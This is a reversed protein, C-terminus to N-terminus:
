EEWAVKITTLYSSKIRDTFTLQELDYVNGGYVNEGKKYLNMYGSKTESVMFLDNESEGGDEWFGGTETFTSFDEEGDRGEYIAILSYKGHGKLNFDVIRAKRGDRTCVPDGDKVRELDFPKM